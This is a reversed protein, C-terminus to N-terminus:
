RDLGPLRLSIVTRGDRLQATAEGGAARCIRRTLALGLGAGPHEDAPDARFGAEFVSEAHAPDLRGGDDEVDLVTFGRDRRVRLVVASRAYRRANDLAPQLARLVLDGDVAVTADLDGECRVDAPLGSVVERVSVLGPAGIRARAPALAGEVLGELRRVSELVEQLDAQEVAAPGGAALLDALAHLHAIPTRLEHSLEATFQREHRLAAAIRELLANLTAALRALELPGGEPDFRRDLDSDSWDRAQEGMRAVPRLALRVTGRLAFFTFLLLLGTFGVAGLGLVWATRTRLGVDSSVVITGVQRGAHTIPLALLRETHLGEEDSVVEGRQVFRDVLKGGLPEGEVVTRGYYIVTGADLASDDGEEDIRLGDATVHVTARVAEARARLAADVQSALVVSLMLAFALLLAMAWVAIWALGGLALRSALSRPLWRRLTTM